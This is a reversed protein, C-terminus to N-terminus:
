LYCKDEYRSLIIPGTLSFRKWFHYRFNELSIWCSVLSLLCFCKMKDRWLSDVPLNKNFAKYLLKCLLHCLICRKGQFAPLHFLLWMEFALAAQTAWWSSLSTISGSAVESSDDWSNNTSSALSTAASTREVHADPEQLFKICGMQAAWGRGPSLLLLLTM